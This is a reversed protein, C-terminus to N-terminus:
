LKSVSEKTGKDKESLDLDGMDDSSQLIEELAQLDINKDNVILDYPIMIDVIWCPVKKYFPKRETSAPNFPDTQTDKISRIPEAKWDESKSYQIFCNYKELLDGGAPDPCHGKDFKLKINVYYKKFRLSVIEADYWNKYVYLDIIDFFDEVNILYDLFDSNRFANNLLQYQQLIYLDM